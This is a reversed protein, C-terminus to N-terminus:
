KKKCLCFICIKELEKGKINKGDFNYILFEELEPDYIEIKGNKLREAILFPIAETIKPYKSLLKKFEIERKEKKIKTLSNLLSLENIYKYANKKVKNWNVFYDYTKNSALLTAFFSEQYDTFSSFGLYKYKSM